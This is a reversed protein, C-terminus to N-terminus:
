SPDNAAIGAPIEPSHDFNRGWFAQLCFYALSAVGWALGVVVGIDIIARWPHPALRVLLILGVIGLTLSVSAIIRRRPARFYAMLFFPALIAELNTAHNLLYKARAAVRPSFAKQFGRYGESFAMFVVSFVLAVWHYWHLDVNSITM